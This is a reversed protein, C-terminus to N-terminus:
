PNLYHYLLTVPPYSLPILTTSRSHSHPFLLSCISDLFSASALISM